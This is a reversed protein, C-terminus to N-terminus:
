KMDGPGEPKLRVVYYNISGTAIKLTANTAVLLEADSKQLWEDLTVRGQPLQGDNIVAYEIGRKRLESAPDTVLFDEVRRSGFPLWFSIESDDTGAAFGVISINQPLLDRLGALSDSRKSYLSYVEQARALPHSDPHRAVLGSLITQAPWLPRPPTLILVSFALGVNVIVLVHWLRSRVLRAVAPGTLLLPITLPYYPAILRAATNMGSEVCYFLLAIWPVILVVFRLRREEVVSAPVFDPVRRASCKAFLSVALLVCLGLGIGASDETPLEGLDFFGMIFHHSVSVLAHPVIMPAHANWWKAPPFFPPCLNQLLIQFVNGVLAYFPNSAAMNPEELVAGSWDHCYVSNLIAMPLFSIAAAIVLLPLRRALLSLMARPKANRWHPEALLIAWPLLLPLNSAKAGTLLAASLFSSTAEASSKSQRARLAFDVAALAYITPFTDNAASGAQLVFNYGTPLLWMWQWAVRSSVGLRSFISFILGPMFLFPLYNLLFLFRTSGTFLMLPASLWEIGCARDNMRYNVTHIWFWHGHALWQLIRPLRYTMATYNDPPYLVAGLFILLALAAFCFPLPRRFRNFLKGARFNKIGALVPNKRQFFIFVGFVAFAAAYGARNLQGFASLTWGAVTAFTSIWIWLQVLPLASM